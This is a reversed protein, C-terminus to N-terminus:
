SAFGEQQRLDSAACEGQPAYPDGLAKTAPTRWTEERFLDGPALWRAREFRLGTIEASPVSCVVDDGVFEGILPDRGGDGRRVSGGPYAADVRLTWLEDRHRRLAMAIADPTIRLRVSVGRWRLAGICGGWSFHWGWGGKM